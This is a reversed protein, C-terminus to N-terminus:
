TRAQIVVQGFDALKDSMNTLQAGDKALSILDQVAFASSFFAKSLTKGRLLSFLLSSCPGDELPDSALVTGGARPVGRRPEHDSFRGVSHSVLSTELGVTDTQSPQTM